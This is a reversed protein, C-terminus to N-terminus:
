RRTALNKMAQFLANQSRNWSPNPNRTYGLTELMELVTDGIPSTKWGASVAFHRGYEQEVPAMLDNRYSSGTADIHSFVGYASDSTLATNLPVRTGRTTNFYVSGKTAVLYPLDNFRPMTSLNGLFDWYDLGNLDYAGSPPIQRAPDTPHVFTDFLTKTFSLWIQRGYRHPYHHLGVYDTYQDKEPFLFSEFGLGHILEHLIVEVVDAEGARATGYMDPYTFKHTASLHMLM